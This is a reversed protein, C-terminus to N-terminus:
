AMPKKARMLPLPFLGIFEDALRKSQGELLLTGLAQNKDIPERLFHARRLTGGTFPVRLEFRL